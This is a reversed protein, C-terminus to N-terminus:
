QLLTFATDGGSILQFLALGTSFRYYKGDGGSAVAIGWDPFSGQAAEIRLWYKKGAEAAFPTPLVFKYDYMTVGGFVGALSEGGNGGVTYKALYVEPTDPRTVQPQSGGAISDFITVTFDTVRGFMANQIYGGRWDIERITQASALTFDKYVYMDQDSGSPAVWSSQILGTGTAPYNFLVAGSNIGYTAAAIASNSLGAKVAMARITVTTGNGAVAIPSSYVPSSTTPTSGDATYYITAGVTACNIGVAQASSYTGAPITFTPIAAAQPYAITVTASALDSNTMGAKAAMAKITMSTGNGAVAIPSSYVLSGTTPTSGDTTYYATAGSTSSTLTVLQDSGYSGGPTSFVPTAVKTTQIITYTASAIASDTLGAMSALAKITMTTGNGAVAIPSAYLASGATPNSGDTTYRIAAGPTGSSLAVLQDSGYSGGPVSFLPTAVLQPDAISYTAVAVASNNQGAQVALAKVTVTTGNGTVPIPAVYVSSASTPTSGDTTFYITAGVTASGITVAQDSSYSGAAPTFTPTAVTQAYNVTYAASAVASPTQGALEAMAKITVAPGNGSVAIPTSYVPSALTPDSGDLTFHITAGATASAITVAQDTTFSGAGPSFSPAAVTAVSAPDSSSGNCGSMLALALLMPLALCERLFWVANQKITKM